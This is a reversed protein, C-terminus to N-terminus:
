PPSVPSGVITLDVSGDARKHRTVAQTASPISAPPPDAAAPEFGQADAGAVYPDSDFELVILNSFVGPDPPAPFPSAAEIARVLSMQWRVDNTCEQLVVEQVGGHQNQTIQVRCSFSGTAPVSRPRMWVREVRASVQGMYRGFMMSRGPQDETAGEAPREHADDTASVHPVPVLPRSINAMRPPALFTRIPASGDQSPDDIARSDNVFVAVLPQESQSDHKNSGLLLPTFLCVHLLLSAVIGCAVM